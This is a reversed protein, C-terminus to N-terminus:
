ALRQGTGGHQPRGKKLSQRPTPLSNASRSSKANASPFLSLLSRKHRLFVTKTSRRSTIPSVFRYRNGAVGPFLARYREQITRPERLFFLALYRDDPGKRVALRLRGYPFCDVQESSHPLIQLFPCFTNICLCAAEYIWAAHSHAAAFIAAQRSRENTATSKETARAPHPKRLPILRM